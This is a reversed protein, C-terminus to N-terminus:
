TGQLRSYNSANSISSSVCRFINKAWFPEPWAFFLFVFNHPKMLHFTFKPASLFTKRNLKHFRSNFFSLSPYNGVAGMRLYFSGYHQSKLSAAMISPRRMAVITKSTKRESQRSTETSEHDSQEGSDSSSSNKARPVSKRATSATFPFNFNFKPYIERLDFKNEMNTWQRTQQWKQENLLSVTKM